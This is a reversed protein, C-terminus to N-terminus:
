QYINKMMKKPNTFKKVMKKHHIRCQNANRTGIFKSLAQCFGWLEM